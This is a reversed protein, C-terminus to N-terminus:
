YFLSYNGAIFCPKERCATFIRIGHIKPVQPGPGGSRRKEPVRERLRLM